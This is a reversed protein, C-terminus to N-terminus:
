QLLNSIICQFSFIFLYTFLYIKSDNDQLGSSSRESDFHSRPFSLQYCSLKSTLFFFAQVVRYLYKDEKKLNTGFNFRLCGLATIRITARPGTANMDIKRGPTLNM